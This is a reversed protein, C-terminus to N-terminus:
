KESLFCGQCRGARWRKALYSTQIRAERQLKRKRTARRTWRCWAGNISSGSLDKWDRMRWIKRSTCSWGVSQLVNQCFESFHPIAIVEASVGALDCYQKQAQRSLVLPVLAPRTPQIKLGFQKALDIWVVDSGNQPNLARGNGCGAGTGSVRGGRDSDSIGDNEDIGSSARELIDESRREPV